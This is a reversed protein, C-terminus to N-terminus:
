LGDRNRGRRWTGGDGIGYLHLALLLLGAFLLTQPTFADGPHTVDFFDLVLALLFM